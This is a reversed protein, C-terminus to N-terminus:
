NEGFNVLPPFGPPLDSESWAILIDRWLSMNNIELYVRYFGGTVLNGDADRANWNVVYHGVSFEREILVTVISNYQSFYSANLNSQSYSILENPGLAKTIYMKIESKKALRFNISVSGNAPNPYPWDLCYQNLIINWSTDPNEEKICDPYVDTYGWSGLEANSEDTIKIGKVINAATIPSVLKDSDSKCGIFVMIILLISVNKM